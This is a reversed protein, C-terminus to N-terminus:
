NIQWLKVGIMINILILGGSSIKKEDDKIYQM